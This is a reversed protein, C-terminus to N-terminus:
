RIYMVLRTNMEKARDSALPAVQDTSPIVYSLPVNRLFIQEGTESEAFSVDSSAWGMLSWM